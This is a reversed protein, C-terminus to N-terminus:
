ETIDRTIKAFGILEGTDDRVADIVANAFFRSGDKRLRWGDSEFRGVDAATKLAREPTGLRRDEETYFRSFHEGLIEDATYGKIRQAGSNWSAIRGDRDLLYIAYDTVAEILLQFRRDPGVQRTVAQQLM